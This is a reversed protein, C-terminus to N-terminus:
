RMPRGYQNVIEVWKRCATRATRYLLTAAGWLATVAIYLVALACVSFLASKAHEDIM